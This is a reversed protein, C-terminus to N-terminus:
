ARQALGDRIRELIAARSRPTVGRAQMTEDLVTLLREVGVELVLRREAEALGANM